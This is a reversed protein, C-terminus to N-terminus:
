SASSRRRAHARLTDRAVGTLESIRRQSWLGSDALREALQIRARHPMDAAVLLECLADELSRGSVAADRRARLLDREIESFSRGDFRAAVAAAWTEADALRGDLARRALARRGCETPLEFPLLVEFRRWIAPDLLSAHNTAALLLGSSPWDDLEQILVTVLRKLEGVETADDRRKAIADLEDLLLVGESQKAYDLVYRLNGGTRGLFSSMVASLDLILLPRGLRKAIWRAALTKGVGPPGTFLATRTPELGADLLRQPESREQLLLDLAHQVTAEYLPAETVTPVTEVKLLQLRSDTDVPVPVTTQRRLPSARTPAERILEKLAQALGPRRERYRSAARQLFSQSDQVRGSLALRALKAYDSDLLDDEDAM